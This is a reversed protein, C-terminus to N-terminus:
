RVKLKDCWKRVTNDSVGYKAAVKTFYKLEQFDQILQEKTPCKSKKSAQQKYCPLCRQANKYCVNNCDICFNPASTTLMQPTFTSEELSHVERHCNACLVQCKDLEQKIHENIMLNKVSAITFDKTNSEVHHFDLATINKDYGCISCSFQNKYELCQRKFNINQQKKRKSECSKCYTWLRENRSKSKIVYFESEPKSTKCHTCTKTKM